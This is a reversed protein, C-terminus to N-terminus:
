NKANSSTLDHGVEIREDMRRVCWAQMIRFDRLIPLVPVDFALRVAWPIPTCPGFLALGARLIEVAYHWRRDKLM